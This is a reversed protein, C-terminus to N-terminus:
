ALILKAFLYRRPALSSSTFNFAIKLKPNQIKSKLGFGNKFALKLGTKFKPNQIKSKLGFGFILPCNQIKPKSNQIEDWRRSGL